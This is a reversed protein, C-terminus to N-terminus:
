EVLSLLHNLVLLGKGALKLRLELLPAWGLLKASSILLQVVDLVLDLLEGVLELMLLVEELPLGVENVLLQLGGLLILSEALLKLLLLIVEQLQDLVGLGDLILVLHDSLSM